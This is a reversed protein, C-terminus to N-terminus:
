ADLDFPSEPDYIESFFGMFPIDELLGKLRFAQEGDCFPSKGEAIQVEFEDVINELRVADIMLPLFSLMADPLDCESRYGRLVEAFYRDMFTKRECANENWAIWGVGHTWLNALDFLYWGYRCNDFDFVTLTGDRYDINYNGDSYDFHIMGYDDAGRPLARLRELLRGAKEKVARGVPQDGLFPCILGDPILTEFYAESYKDFFDFRRHEPNYDKSLAHMKGLTSGTNFWYEEIPANERYRYGHAALQDGKARRFMSVAYERGGCSVREANRGQLSPVVAAVSAGNKALYSVYETEALYDEFVRDELGSFRLVREEGIMFVTNRGGEHAPILKATRKDFGFMEASKELLEEPKEPRKMPM